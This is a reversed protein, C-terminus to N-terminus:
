ESDAEAALVEVATELTVEGINLYLTGDTVTVSWEISRQLLAAVQQVFDYDLGLVQLNPAAALRALHAGEWRWRASGSALLIVRAAHRAAKLLREPDPLGVELWLDVRGDGGKRWLDPEDGAAIGKTFVLDPEFCLAYALLRAVLREATESPHRAVTAQLHEYCGRDVNSLHISVRYITPTLAM